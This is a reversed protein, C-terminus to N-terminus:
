EDALIEVRGARVAKVLAGHDRETQDAYAFAFKVMAREFADGRGLYGALMTADGSRAHARALTRGAANAWRLLRAASLGDVPLSMKMDRLQRVYFDNGYKGRVWGLFIDSSSQMLRQGIVVRQGQNEYVSRATYPELVSRGAEKFQLLLPQERESILLVIYCRTGVSGIGVVKLAIDVLRYRDLLVRRDDSLTLRYAAMAARARQEFDPESVHFLIPPQDVLRYQGDKRHTIKPFLHEVVRRTAQVALRERFKRAEADPAEAILTRMDLRDYWLDIPAMRSSGRMRDRYTRACELVADRAQADSLQSDRGAVVFSAVLRKLDWEWPGPHTEDFDNLDFILNREPTAFLGFNLLHCDGCAQVQLGTHPMRALDHAMVSAAGRLFTFPSRVMRGYRIPMLEQLRGRGSQILLRIPDRDRSAIKWNGHSQRRISDRLAKGAARREEPTRAVPARRGGGARKGEPGERSREDSKQKTVDDEARLRVLTCPQGGSAFLNCAQCAGAVPSSLSRSASCAVVSAPSRPSRRRAVVHRSAIGRHDHASCDFRIAVRRGKPM